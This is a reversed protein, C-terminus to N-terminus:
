RHGAILTAKISVEFDADNRERDIIAILRQRVADRNEEPVIALWEDLFTDKILPSELFAEGNEFAFEEKSSFSQLEQLGAREGLAEVDSITPREHILAELRGWVQEDIGLDHLTEWYISFFEDFSGHTALKLVVPADIEAVRVLEKLLPAIESTHLLSADGIVGDFERDAFRLPLGKSQEFTVETIKKVQAKARALELREPSPDMAIVEGKGALREALEIAHEGTGCNVDLIRGETPMEINENILTDFRDRWEPAIFLDYRYALEKENNTM